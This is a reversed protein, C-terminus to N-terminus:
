KWNVVVMIPEQRADAIGSNILFRQGDGTV